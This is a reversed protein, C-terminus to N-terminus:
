LAHDSLIYVFSSYLIVHIADVSLSLCGHSVDVYFYSHIFSPRQECM